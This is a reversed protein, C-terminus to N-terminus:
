YQLRNAVRNTFQSLSGSLSIKTPCYTSENHIAPHKSSSQFMQKFLLREEHSWKVQVFTINHCQLAKVITHSESVCDGKQPNTWQRFNLCFDSASIPSPRPIKTPNRALSIIKEGGLLGYISQTWVLKRDLKLPAKQCRFNLEM